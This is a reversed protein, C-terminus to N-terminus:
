DRDNGMIKGMLPLIDKEFWQSAEAGSSALKDLNDYGSYIEGTSEDEWSWAIEMDDLITGIQQVLVAHLAGCGGGPGSYGYATDMSLELHCAPRYDEYDDETERYDEARYPGDPVYHVMIWASLGQGCSTMLMRSEKNYGEVEGYITPEDEVSQEEPLRVPDSLQGVIYQVGRFFDQPDIRDHVFMRTNLTMFRAKDKTPPM